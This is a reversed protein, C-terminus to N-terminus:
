GVKCPAVNVSMQVLGLGNVTCLYMVEATTSAVKGQRGYRSKSMSEARSKETLRESGDRARLIYGM